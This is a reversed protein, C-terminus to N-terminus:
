CKKNIIYSIKREGNGVPAWITKVSVSAFRLGGVLILTRVVLCLFLLTVSCKESSVIALFDVQVIFINIYCVFQQTSM